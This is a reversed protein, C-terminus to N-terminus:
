FLQSRYLIGDATMAAEMGMADLRDVRQGIILWDKFYRARSPTAYASLETFISDPDGNIRVGADYLVGLTRCVDRFDLRDQDFTIGAAGAYVYRRSTRRVAVTALRLGYKLLKAGLELDVLTRLERWDQDSLAALNLLSSALEEEINMLFPISDPAFFDYHALQITSHFEQLVSNLSM